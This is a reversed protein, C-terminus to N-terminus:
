CKKSEQIIGINRIRVTASTAAEANKRAVESPVGVFLIGSCAPMLGYM